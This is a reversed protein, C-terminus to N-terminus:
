APAGLTVVVKGDEVAVPLSMLRYTPTTLTVGEPLLFEWAHWPCKLVRGEHVLQRGFMGDSVIAGGLTGECVPAGAHPCYNRFAVFRGDMHFIGVSVRGAIKCVIHSGEPLDQADCVIHRNM